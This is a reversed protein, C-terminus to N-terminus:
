PVGVRMPRGVAAAVTRLAVVQEDPRGVPAVTVTTVGAEAYATLREAIRDAPGLLATQDLLEYPVLGAADRPRGDLYADQVARAADGFGMRVALQNYFNQSRSGMGGVYLATYPRVADACVVPDPGVCVPVTVTIDVAPLPTGSTAARARGEAVAALQPASHEPAFFVLLVGDAVEGALTLNRPGIAALYIPIRPRVPAVTLRLAKGAGGPLPLPYHRGAHVLPQRDLATRVAELYERTRGLPDAFPVGHWGESVQPGSVGLGLTFRGGSLADLSAATMATMAPTRAPIQFVASGIGIRHTRAAVFGLVSAADAGYAEAAWVVDYGLDEAVNALSLGAVDGAGGRYGLALGLRLDAPRM